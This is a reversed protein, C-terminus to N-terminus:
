SQKKKWDGKEEEQKKDKSDELIEPHAGTDTHRM